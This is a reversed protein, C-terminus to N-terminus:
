NATRFIMKTKGSILTLKTDEIKYSFIKKNFADVVAREVQMEPCSMLTGIMNGFKIKNDKIDLSGSLTNCGAHGSFVMEILNVEFTPLGKVLKAKKLNVGTMEQLEWVNNLRYDFLYKGCGSFVKFDKDKKNRVEIKVNHTFNEGSMNDQCKESTVKVILEGNESKAKYIIVSDGDTKKGEVAPTNLKIDDMTSFRMAKEFDIELTWNPENGRAIFDIGNLYKEQYFEENLEVAKKKPEIKKISKGDRTLHYNEELESNFRNGEQDLMIIENNSILFMKIQDLGDLSIISDSIFNWTGENVLQENSKGKYVLKQVFTYDKRFNIQYDIEDCDQCPLLGLWVGSTLNSLEKPEPISEPTSSCGVIIALLFTTLLIFIKM